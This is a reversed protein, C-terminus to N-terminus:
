ANVKQTNKELSSQVYFYGGFLMAGGVMDGLLTSKFFPIGDVYAKVLSSITYGNWGGAFYGFNSVIFFTLSAGLVYVLSTLAKPQNMTTGLGTAAILAGYTFLQGVLDYFGPTATFLQFYVDALFQGLLPVLFAIRKDKIIAGSFLSIAAIPVMNPMHLGANIIRATFAILILFVALLININTRKM